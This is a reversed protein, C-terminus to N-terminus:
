GDNSAEIESVFYKVEGIKSQTAKFEVRATADLFGCASQSVPLRDGFVISCQAINGSGKCVLEFGDASGMIQALVSNVTGSEADAGVYKLSEAGNALLASLIGAKWRDPDSKVFPNEDAFGTHVGIFAFTICSLLIKKM